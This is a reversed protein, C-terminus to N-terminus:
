QEVLHERCAGAEGAGSLLCWKTEAFLDQFFHVSYVHMEELIM